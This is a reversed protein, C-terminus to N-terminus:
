NIELNQLLVVELLNNKYAEESLHLGEVLFKQEEHRVYKKRLNLLSKIKDNTVSTIKEM